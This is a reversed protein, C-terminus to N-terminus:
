TELDYFCVTNISFFKSTASGRDETDEALFGTGLDM